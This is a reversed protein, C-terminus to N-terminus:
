PTQTCYLQKIVFLYSARTRHGIRFHIFTFYKCVDHHYLVKNLCKIKYMCNEFVGLHSVRVITMVM